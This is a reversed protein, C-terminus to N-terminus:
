YDDDMDLLPENMVSWMDDETGFRSLNVSTACRMPMASPRKEVVSISVTPPVETKDAEASAMDLVDQLDEETVFEDNNLLNILDDLAADETNSEMAYAINELAVPDALSAMRQHRSAVDDPTPGGSGSRVDQHALRDVLSDWVKPEDKAVEVLEAVLEAKSPKADGAAVTSSSTASSSSFSGQRVIGTGKKSKKSKTTAKVNVSAVTHHNAFRLAHGIKDRAQLPTIEEWVKEQDNLKLFRSNQSLVDYIEKTIQKPDCHRLWNMFVSQIRCRVVFAVSGKSVYRCRTM